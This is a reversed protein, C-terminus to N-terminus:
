WCGFGVKNSSKGSASTREKVVSATTKHRLENNQEELMMIRVTNATIQRRSQRNQIVSAIHTDYNEGTQKIFPYDM